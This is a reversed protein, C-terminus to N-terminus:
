TIRIVRSKNTRQWIYRALQDYADLKYKDSESKIVEWKYPNTVRGSFEFNLNGDEAVEVTHTYM